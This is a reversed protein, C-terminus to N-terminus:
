DLVKVAFGRDKLWALALSVWQGVTNSLRAMEETQDNVEDTVVSLGHCGWEFLHLSFPVGARRYAQALLISNEVPVCDDTVTHWIFAPASDKTVRKEVSLSSTDVKGWGGIRDKSGQHTVGEDMSVVPYSLVVANLKALKAREGLLSVIAEDQYMTALMGALHGGASFGIAALHAADLLYRQANERLYIAAMCAELLPDPFATEISYDLVFSCYGADMFKMAVPAGERTSVIAYGGGPIILVGPRLRPKVEKALQKRVYTILYGANGEKRPIGFYAYLDIKEYIM